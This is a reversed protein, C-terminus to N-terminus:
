EILKGFTLNRLKMEDSAHGHRGRSAPICTNTFYDLSETRYESFHLDRQCRARDDAKRSNMYIFTGM